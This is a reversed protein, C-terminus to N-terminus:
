GPCRAKWCDDALEGVQQGQAQAAPIVADVDRLAWAAKGPSFGNPDTSRQGAQKRAHAKVLDTGLYLRVKQRDARVDLVKGIFRTPVSYM